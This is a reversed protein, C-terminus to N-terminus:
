DIKRPKCHLHAFNVPSPVKVEEMSYTREQQSQIESAMANDLQDEEIRHLLIRTKLMLDPAPM